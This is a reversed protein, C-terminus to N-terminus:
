CRSPGGSSTNGLVVFILWTPIIAWRSILTAMLSAVVTAALMQLAVVGWGEFIARGRRLRGPM